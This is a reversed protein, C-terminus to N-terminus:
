GRPADDFRRGDPLASILLGGTTAVTGVNGQEDEWPSRIPALTQAYWNTDLRSSLEVFFNEVDEVEILAQQAELYWRVVSASRRDEPSEKDFVDKLLADALLDGDPDRGFARRKEVHERVWLLLNVYRRAQAAQQIMRNPLRLQVGGFARSEGTAWDDGLGLDSRHERGTMVEFLDITDLAVMLNAMSEIVNYSTAGRDPETTEVPDVLMIRLPEGPDVSTHVCSKSQPAVLPKGAWGVQTVNSLQQLGEALSAWRNQARGGKSEFVHWNGASDAVLFDPQKGKASSTAAPVRAKSWIDYHLFASMSVGGARLWQRAALYTGASGICFALIGVESKELARSFGRPCLAQNSDRMVYAAALELRALMYRSLQRCAARNLALSSAWEGRKGYGCEIAARIADLRGVVRRCTLRGKTGFPSYKIEPFNAKIAAGPTAAEGDSRVKFLSAKEVAPTVAKQPGRYEFENGQSVTAASVASPAACM